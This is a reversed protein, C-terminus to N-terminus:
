IAARRRAALWLGACIGIMLVINILSDEPGFAGGTWLASGHASSLLPAQARVDSEGSLPLGIAFITANWCFHHASTVWLNRSLIFMLGWMLGALIVVGLTLLGAGNNGLHGVGFVLASAILAARTGVAKELLRFLIGRFAVEELVAAIWLTALVVRAANWGQVAEVRFHGTAFLALITVGISLSGSVGALLTWKWRPRLETVARKEYFHVFGAYALVTILFIDIRRVIASTAEDLHFAAALIDHLLFRYAAIAGILTAGAVALALLGELLRRRSPAALADGAIRVM